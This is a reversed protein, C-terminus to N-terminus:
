IREDATEGHLQNLWGKCLRYVSAAGVLESEVKLEAPHLLFPQTQTGGLGGHFGIQEEFACGEDKEPDYFSNILIDPCNPFSDTRRLHDAAHSGFHALPNEGEIRNDDLYYVGDGGIVLAGKKSSRVMIFGIGEHEALGPIVAPYAREIEELTMRQAWQTFSVLGLNGSALAVVVPQEQKEMDQKGENQNKPEGEARSTGNTKLVRGKIASAVAKTAGSEENQIVDSLLLDLHGEGEKTTGGSGVQYDVTMLEQIFDQLSMGYRQLFTAGGSQGHDSLVVLHYPRPADQIALELRGFAKDIKRLIDFVGPDLIGAHHAVEDYGVFTAYASSRGAFMDGLLTDINLDLMLVTTAARILPYMGGRHHKDLIPQVNHKRAWRYQRVELIIDGIFHLLTRVTNYPNAFFAQFNTSHSRSRDTLASATTMVYPADGSFLNGRSAGDESLLGNGDSHQQEMEPLIKPNSSAAIQGSTKDYWRFAPIDSNNGHLIGAQSASTQSSTDTEWGTLVHSGSELWRSLTPMYGERIVKQLIPKALGDIELFLVGPVDSTKPRAIRKMQMKIQNRHFFADDDIALLSSLILTIATMGLALWFASWYSTVNFGPLIQAALWVIFGNLLLAVLGLTVVAFPVLFYSLLPWLLANLLGIVLVAIVATGLSDVQVGDQLLISMISFAVVEVAWIVLIRLLAQSTDPKTM